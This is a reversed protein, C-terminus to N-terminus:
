LWCGYSCCLRWCVAVVVVVAVVRTVVVVYPDVYVSYIVVVYLVAVVGFCVNIVHIGVIDAVRVAVTFRM